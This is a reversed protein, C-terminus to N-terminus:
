IIANVARPNPIPNNHTLKHSDWGPWGLQRSKDCLRTISASQVALPTAAHGYLLHPTISYWCAYGTVCQLRLAGQASSFAASVLSRIRMVMRDGEWLTFFALMHDTGGVNCSSSPFMYGCATRWMLQELCKKILFHRLFQFWCPVRNPQDRPM